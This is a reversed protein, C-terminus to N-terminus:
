ISKWSMESVKLLAIMHFLTSARATKLHNLNASMSLQGGYGKNMLSGTYEAMSVKTEYQESRSAKKHPLYHKVKQRMITKKLSSKDSLPFNLDADPIDALTPDVLHTFKSLLRLKKKAKEPISHALRFFEPHYFPSTSWIYSRNRDEEEFKLHAGLEGLLFSKYKLNSDKFPLQRLYDRLLKEQEDLDFLLFKDLSRITSLRHKKIAYRAFKSKGLPIDPFLFGLTDTGGNGTIMVQFHSSLDKLYQLVYASGVDDMAGKATALETFFEPSWSKCNSILPTRNYHRGVQKIIAMENGSVPQDMKYAAYEVPYGSKVIEGMVLRSAMSGNLSIVVKKKEKLRNKLAKSFIDYLAKEPEKETFSGNFQGTDFPHSETNVTGKAIRVLSSADLRDIDHYLTRHGLPFGIRLYQYISSEDFLLGTTVKDMVFIDRSLIFQKQSYVYLPLRGLYDNVVVINERKDDIVYIIFEGDLNHFYDLIREVHDNPNLLARAQQLFDKDQEPDTDYIKGEILIIFDENKIVQYPYQNGDRFLIVLEKNKLFYNIKFSADVLSSVRKRISEDLGNEQYLLTFGPM